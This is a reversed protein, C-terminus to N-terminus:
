TDSITLCSPGEISYLDPKYSSVTSSQINSYFGLIRLIQRESITLSAEVWRLHAFGAILWAM